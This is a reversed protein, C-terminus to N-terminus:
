DDTKEQKKQWCLDFVIHGAVTIDAKNDKSPEITEKITNYAKVDGHLAANILATSIAKQTNMKEGKKTIIDECLLAKLEDAMTRKARRAAGSAKGGKKGNRVAEERSQESTFPKLNQENM